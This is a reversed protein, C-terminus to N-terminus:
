FTTTTVTMIRYRLKVNTRSTHGSQAYMPSPMRLLKQKRLKEATMGHRGCTECTAVEFGEATRCTQFWNNDLSKSRSSTKMHNRSYDRAHVRSARLSPKRIATAVFPVGFVILTPTPSLTHRHPHRHSHPPPCDMFDMFDGWTCHTPTWLVIILGGFCLSQSYKPLRQNWLPQVAFPKSTVLHLFTRERHFSDRFLNSVYFRSRTSEDMFGVHGYDM